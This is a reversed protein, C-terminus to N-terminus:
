SKEIKAEEIVKNELDWIRREYEIEKDRCCDITVCGDRHTCDRDYNCALDWCGCCFAGLKLCGINNGM